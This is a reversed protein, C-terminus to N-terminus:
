SNIVATHKKGHIWELRFSKIRKSVVSIEDNEGTQTYMSIISLQAEKEESM